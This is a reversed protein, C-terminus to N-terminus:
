AEDDKRRGIELWCIGPGDDRTLTVERDLRTM